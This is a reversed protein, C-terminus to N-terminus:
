AALRRLMTFTNVGNASDYSIKDMVNHIIYLGMGGEPLNDLDEPDFDLNPPDLQEMSNGTDKISISLVEENSQILVEITHGPKYLYAHEIANNVAEVVCIEVEDACSEDLGLHKGLAHVSVGVLGVDDLNSDITLTITNNKM